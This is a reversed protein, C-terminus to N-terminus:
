KQSNNPPSIVPFGMMEDYESQTMTEEHPSQGNRAALKSSYEESQATCRKYETDLLDIVAKRGYSDLYDMKMDMTSRREKLVSKIPRFHEDTYTMWNIGKYDEIVIYFYHGAECRFKLAFGSSKPSEYFDIMTANEIHVNEYGCIPCYHEISDDSSFENGIKVTDSLLFAPPCDFFAAIRKITEFDPERKNTEWMAVTSQSVSLAAALEQQLLGKEIRLAKIREGLM